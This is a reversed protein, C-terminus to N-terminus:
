AFGELILSAVLAFVLLGVVAWAITRVLSTNM